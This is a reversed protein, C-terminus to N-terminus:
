HLTSEKLARFVVVVVVVLYALRLNNILASSSPVMMAYLLDELITWEQIAAPLSKFPIKDM